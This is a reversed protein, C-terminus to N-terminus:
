VVICDTTCVVYVVFSTLTERSSKAMREEGEEREKKKETSPGEFLYITKNGGGKKKCEREPCRQRPWLPKWRPFINSEVYMRLYPSFSAM